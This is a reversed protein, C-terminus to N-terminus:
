RVTWNSDINPDGGRYVLTTGPNDPDDITTGVDPWDAAEPGFLQVRIDEAYQKAQPGSVAEMTAIALDRNARKQKIVEPTDGPQPFYQRDASAFEQQGIAAGSEYRLIANIFDRKAQEYLKYEPSTLLNGALPINSVLANYLNTGEQEVTNLIRQSSSMRKAFQTAKGQGETLAERKEGAAGGESLEVTGDPRVTLSMGARQGGNIMFQRYAESGPELDAAIAREKLTRFAAPLESGQQTGDYITEGTTPNIIMSGVVVGKQKDRFMSIADKASLGSRIANAIKPDVQDFYAATRNRQDRATQTARIDQLEERLGAALSADPELRMSNFALALRVMNDRSGFYDKVRDMFTPDQEIQPNQQVQKVVADADQAKRLMEPTFQGQGLQSQQAEQNLDPRDEVTMAQPPTPMGSQPAQTFQQQVQPTTSAMTMPEGPYQTGMAQGTSSVVTEPVNMERQLPSLPTDVPSSMPPTMLRTTPPAVEQNRRFENYADGFFDLIGTARQGIAV